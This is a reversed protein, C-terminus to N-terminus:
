LTHGWVSSSWFSVPLTVPCLSIVGDRTTCTLCHPEGPHAAYHCTSWLSKLTHSFLHNEARCSLSCNLCFMVEIVHYNICACAFFIPFEMSHRNPIKWIKREAQKGQICTGNNIEARAFSILHYRHLYVSIKQGWLQSKEELLIRKLFKVLTSWDARCCHCKCYHLNCVSVQKGKISEATWIFSFAWTRKNASSRM